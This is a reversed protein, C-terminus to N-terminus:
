QQRGHGGRRITVFGGLALLVLTAPEPVLGDVACTHITVVIENGEGAPVNISETVAEIAVVTNGDLTTDSPKFDGFEETIEIRETEEDLAATFGWEGCDQGNLVTTLRITASSSPASTSLDVIPGSAAAATLDVSVQATGPTNVPGLPSPISLTQRPLAFPDLGSDAENTLRVTRTNGLYSALYAASAFASGESVATEDGISCPDQPLPTRNVRDVVARHALEAERVIQIVPFLFGFGLIAYVVLLEVLTFGRTGNEARVVPGRWQTCDRM